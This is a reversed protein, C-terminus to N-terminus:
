ATGQWIRYVGLTAIGLTVPLRFWSPLANSILKAVDLMLELTKEVLGLFIKPLTKVYVGFTAQANEGRSVADQYARYQFGLDFVGATVGGMHNIMMVLPFAAGISRATESLQVKGYKGLNSTWRCAGFGVIYTASGVAKGFTVGAALFQQTRGQAVSNYKATDKNFGISHEFWKLDVKEGDNKVWAKALQFFSICQRILGRMVGAFINFIGMVDRGVKVAERGSDLGEVVADDGTFVRACVSATDLGADILKLSKDRGEPSGFFSEFRKWISPESRDGEDVLFNRCCSGAVNIGM